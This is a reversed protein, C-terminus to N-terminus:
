LETVKLSKVTVTSGLAASIRVPECIKRNMSVARATMYPYDDEIHRLEENVLVLMEGRDIIWTIDVYENEPIRGTGYYGYGRGTLMDHIRLEEKRVEWNLIVRGEKYYLRINTSDTKATIDIRLPFSYSEATQVCEIDRPAYIKLEGNLFTINQKKDGDGLPRDQRNSSSVMTKLDIEHVAAM